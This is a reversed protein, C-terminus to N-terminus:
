RRPPRSATRAPSASSAGSPSTRLWCSSDGVVPVDHARALRVLPHPQPHTLPVGPSLVLRDVRDWDCIELDVIPVGSAAAERRREPDDDWAWVRAGSAALARCASRGTRGLGLVAATRDAM